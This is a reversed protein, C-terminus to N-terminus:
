PNANSEGGSGILKIYRLDARIDSTVRVTPSTVIIETSQPPTKETIEFVAESGDAKTAGEFSLKSQASAGIASASFTLEYKGPPVDFIFSNDKEIRCSDRELPDKLWKKDQSVVPITGFGFGTDETYLSEAVVPIFNRPPGFGRLIGTHEKTGFDFLVVSTKALESDKEARQATAAKGAVMRARVEPWAGANHIYVPFEGLTISKGDVKKRGGFSDVVECEGSGLSLNAEGLVTWGVLVIGKPTEWAYLWINPDPDPLRSSAGPAMGGLERLMTAVSFYSPKLSFDNRMLGSAAHQSPTSGQERYVFVKDVGSALALLTVRPIRAAQLREDIGHSGTSDYGTETLWIAKGPAYLDRWAILERLNDEYTVPSEEGGHRLLNADKTATEPPQRGSYYHVNLIDFFDVPSKGDAYKTQRLPEIVELTLGAMGPSTVPIKPDAAKAAEAGARFFPWFKELPAAWAGYSADAHPNLNPENWIEVAGIQNLGSLKDPTKLQDEPVKNSGYRAVVQFVAEGYDAPDKPPHAIRNKTVEPGASTAYEPVVFIYPLVKAGSENYRRVLEDHRVVWPTVTGDFRFEGPAPSIMAWKMNEFRIWGFGYPGWMDALDFNAANIGFRSADADAPKNPPPATFITKQALQLLGEATVEFRLLYAGDDPLSIDKIPQVLFSHAPVEVPFSGQAVIGGLEPVVKDADSMGDFVEIRNPLSIRKAPEGEKFYRVQLFRGEVPASAIAESGTWRKFLDIKEMGPIVQFQTGDMSASVEANWLWNADSPFIAVKTIKHPSGLDIRQTVEGHGKNDWPIEKNTFVLGDTLTPEETETGRFVTWAKAGRAIDVGHVPDAVAVPVLQPNSRITYEATAQIPKATSNHFILSGGLPARVPALPPLEIRLDLPPFPKEPQIFVGTLADVDLYTPGPTKTFWALNLSKIPQDLTSNQDPQKWAQEFNGGEANFEVLKWGQWDAPIREILGEGNADRLQLGLESVNSDESLYVWVGLKKFHGPLEGSLQFDGKAGAIAAEGRFRLSGSGLKPPIGEPSTEIAAKDLRWGGARMGETSDMGQILRETTGPADAGSVPTSTFSIAIALIALLHPKKM